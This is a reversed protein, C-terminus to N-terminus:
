CRAALWGISAILRCKSSSSSRVRPRCPFILQFRNDPKIYNGIEGAMELPPRSIRSLPQSLRSLHPDARQVCRRATELSRESPGGIVSLRAGADERWRQGIYALGGRAFWQATESRANTTRPRDM